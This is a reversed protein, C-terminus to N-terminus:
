PFKFEKECGFVFEGECEFFKFVEDLVFDSVVVDFFHDGFFNANYLLNDV